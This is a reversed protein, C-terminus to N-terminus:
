PIFPTEMIMLSRCVPMRSPLSRSPSCKKLIASLLFRPRIPGVSCNVGVADAGAGGPFCYGRYCKGRQFYKRRTGVTMFLVPMIPLGCVTSAADVAAWLRKRYQDHDWCRDSGRRFGEFNLRSLFVNRFAAEHDDGPLFWGKVVPPLIWRRGSSCPARHWNRFVRTKDYQLEEWIPLINCEFSIQM